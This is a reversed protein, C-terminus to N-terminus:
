TMTNCPNHPVFFNEEAEDDADTGKITSLQNFRKYKYM